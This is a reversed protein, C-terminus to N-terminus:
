KGCEQKLFTKEDASPEEGLSVRQIIDACRENSLKKNPTRLATTAEPAPAPAPPRITRPSPSPSPSPRSMAATPRADATPAPAQVQTQTPAVPEASPEPRAPSAPAAAEAAPPEPPEIAAPEPSRAPASIRPASAAPDALQRRQAGFWAFGGTAAALALLALLLAAVGLAITRAGLRPATGATQPAHRTQTQLALTAQNSTHISPAATRQLTTSSREDRWLSDRAREFLSPSSSRSSSLSPSPMTASPMENAGPTPTNRPGNGILARLEAVSQPRDKPLVALSHDIASLFQESYRGAATLALPERRDKLFRAVAQPPTHGTIAFELVSGLAYIDTWAGQPMDPLGGYQEVPAYGTKLIVTLAQTMDGIVRRAAGFDLLLPRGDSLMLINDPAIDRHYCRAAHMLELADILPHLLALLRAEDPPGGPQQLLQGLTIGAYYPMVMYATGHAEWFRHVKLLSPHDFQALLRAENIFSRLGAAFTETHRSSRVAVTMAQTRTALASPMYEKIAVRRDLTLDHALYVIGFGGQGIVSLIEFEHLRTGAPLADAYEGPLGARPAGHPGAPAGKIVTREDDNDPTTM